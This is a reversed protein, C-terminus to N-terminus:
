RSQGRHSPYWSVLGLGCTSSRMPDLRGGPLMTLGVVAALEVVARNGQFAYPAQVPDGTPGITDVIIKDFGASLAAAVTGDGGDAVPLLITELGPVVDRMGTALADAVEFATLSRGV